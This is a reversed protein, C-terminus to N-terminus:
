PGGLHPYKHSRLRPLDRALEDKLRRFTEIAETAARTASAAYVKVSKIRPEGTDTTGIEVSCLNEYTTEEEARRQEDYQKVRVKTPQGLTEYVSEEM